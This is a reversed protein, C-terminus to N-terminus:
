EKFYKSFDEPLEADIDRLYKELADMTNHGTIQMLASKAEYPTKDERLSRYLKTVYTHRFSYLGHDKGLGLKDKVKKFQKTFYDRKNDDEIIWEDAIGEPTFLSLSHDKGILDPIADILIQPIIKIKVAKNKARIYMKADAVDIDGVKLRCIEIPRLFGYCIFHVFLLLTKDNEELYTFIDDEVSSKYTKNREPNSKLINIKKVFNEIVIENDYLVQFLSSIDTRSNNRNRASTNTLVENLFDIVIKKNIVSIDQTEKIKNIKLWKRFQNIRSKYRSYSNAKLTNVKIHLAKDFAEQITTKVEQSIPEAIPKNVSNVKSVPKFSFDNGQELMESIVESLDKNDDYPNYGRDLIFLLAKKLQTLIITREKKTGHVNAGGKINPQRKLKHTKPDRYSYYIYWAKSLAKKQEAKNLSSWKSADVGGTYIKPESYTLKM